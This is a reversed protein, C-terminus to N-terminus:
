SHPKVRLFIPLTGLTTLEWDSIALLTSSKMARMQTVLLGVFVIFIFLDKWDEKDMIM